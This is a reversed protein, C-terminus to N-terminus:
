GGGIRARVTVGFTRPPNLQGTVVGDTQAGGWLASNYTIKDTFNRVWATVSWAGGTAAYQLQADGLTYAPRVVDEITNVDADDMHTRGVYQVSIEPILEGGFVNFRHLYSANGSVPTTGGPTNGDFDGTAQGTPVGELNYPTSNKYIAPLVFSLYKANLVQVAASLRDVPTVAANVAFNAGYIRIEGTSFTTIEGFPLFPAQPPPYTQESRESGFYHDMFGDVNVQLRKDFFENKSGINFNKITEAPVYPTSGYQLNPARYGTSNSFFLLNDPTLDYNIGAKYIGKQRVINLGFLNVGGGPPFFVANEYTTSTVEDYNYRGGLVFHLKDDLIPPTYTEQSFVAYSVFHNQPGSLLVCNTTLGPSTYSGKVCIFGHETEIFNYAGVLWQLPKTSASSLRIENTYSLSDQPFNQSSVGDSTFPSPFGVSVAFAVSKRFGSQAFLTAWDFNDTFQLQGGWARNYDQSDLRGLPYLVTSNEYPNSLVPVNIGPVITVVGTPSIIAPQNRVGIVGAGDNNDRSNEFDVSGELTAEPTIHLLGSARGGEQHANNMGNAFYGDHSYDQGAFRFALADNVPLNIDGEARFEHYDGGEVEGSAGFESGPHNPIMNIVGGTANRGYLTGQPGDLVEVRQLDYFFGTLGTLRPLYIGDIHVAIPSQTANDINYPHIGDITIVTGGIGAGSGVGISPDVKYLTSFDFVGANELQEQSVVQVDLAANQVTEERKEATIVVEQITDADGAGSPQDAATDAARAGLGVSLLVSGCVVASKFRYHM